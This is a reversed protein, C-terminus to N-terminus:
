KVRRRHLLVYFFFTAIRGIFFLIGIPNIICEYNKTLITIPSGNLPFCMVTSSRHIFYLVDFNAGCRRHWANLEDM